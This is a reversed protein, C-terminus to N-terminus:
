PGPKFKQIIPLDCLFILIQSKRGHLWSLNCAPLSGALFKLSHSCRGSAWRFIAGWSRVGTVKSSHRYPLPSRLLLMGEHQRRRHNKSTSFHIAIHICEDDKITWAMKAILHDKSSIPQGGGKMKETRPPRSFATLWVFPLVM